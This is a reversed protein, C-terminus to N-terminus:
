KNLALPWGPPASRLYAVALLLVMLVEALLAWPLLALGIGIGVLLDYSVHCVISTTTNAFRRLLGLGCSLVFVGIVDFSLGYQTHVSAFLISTLLIGLRPQLAGRFLTEECIGAALALTVIACPLTAGHM